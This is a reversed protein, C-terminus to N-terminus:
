IQFIRYIRFLHCKVLTAIDQSSALGPDVFVAPCQALKKTVLHCTVGMPVVRGSSHAHSLVRITRPQAYHACSQAPKM